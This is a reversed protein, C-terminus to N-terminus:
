AGIENEIDWTTGDDYSLCARIGYPYRRHAYVCHIAGNKPLALQPPYGWIPTAEPRSWTLVGSLDRYVLLRLVAAIVALMLLLLLGVTQRRTLSTM